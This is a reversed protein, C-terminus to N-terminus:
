RDGGVYSFVQLRQNYSDAIYITTDNKGGIFIGTPLWFEGYDGGQGGFNLLFKGEQSFVQVAHVLSDVVYIHGFKDTAVGKPRSQRGTATGAEGFQRLLAGDASFIQIRFNLSDAVYLNQKKDLWLMTPYNFEGKEQGRKGITNILKGQDDYVKVSHEVTDVIYLSKTKTNYAVGTARKPPPDLKVPVVEDAGAEIVFVGLSSDTVYVRDNDVALGVPTSLLTNGKQRILQYEGDQVNFRHVGGVGPDAVFLTGDDLEAVAAPKILTINEEGMFFEAVKTFFSKEIGLDNADHIIQKFAIRPPDPKDPWVLEPYQRQQSKKASSTCGPLVLLVSLGAVILVRSLYRRYITSRALIM